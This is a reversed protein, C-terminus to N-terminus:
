VSHLGKLWHYSRACTQYLRGDEEISYRIRQVARKELQHRLYGLPYKRRYAAFYADLEAKSKARGNDGYKTVYPTFDPYLPASTFQGHLTVKLLNGIMVDDFIEYEIATMFSHRPAEFTLGRDFRHNNFETVHEIGGLRVRIFDYVKELHSISKFYATIKSRDEPQMPESWDDGFHKCDFIGDRNPEPNIEEFSDKRVDYSIFAPLLEASKANWGVPYDSLRTTYQSIWATDSRQYVHMSSFPITYRTGWQKAWNAMSRGVPRRRAARPTIFTGDERYLNILDADGFGALHLMFSVDYGRIIRKVINGWGHDDADNFDAILRGDIDVLLIADQMYDAICMVRIHDSLQYWRRDQLVRTKFGREQLGAHLIGGYHDPLLIEAGKLLDLSRSSTHDPHAHSLWVYDCSKISAMQREPVQHSLGWSGFYAGGTVWPDTVLVPRRDHCLLTANGITEFGVEM